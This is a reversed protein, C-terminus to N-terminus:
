LLLCVSLCVSLYALCTTEHHVSRRLFTFVNLLVDPSMGEAAAEGRDKM